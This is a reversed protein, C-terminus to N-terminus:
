FILFKVVYLVWYILLALNLNYTHGKETINQCISFIIFVVVIVGLLFMVHQGSTVAGSIAYSLSLILSVIVLVYGLIKSSLIKNIKEKM